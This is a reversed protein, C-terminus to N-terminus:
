WQFQIGGSGVHITQRANFQLDYNAFLSVHDRIAYTCGPGLVVWDRGLDLGSLVFPTVPGSAFDTTVLGTTQRLFEHM